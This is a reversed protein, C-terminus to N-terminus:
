IRQWLPTQGAVEERKKDTEQDGQSEALLELLVEPLWPGFNPLSHKGVAGWCSTSPAPVKCRGM